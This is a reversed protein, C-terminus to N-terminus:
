LIHAHAHTCVYVGCVCLYRVHVCRLMGCQWVVTMITGYTVPNAFLPGGCVDLEIFQFVM